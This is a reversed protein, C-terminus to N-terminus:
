NKSMLRRLTARILNSPMHEYAWAGGMKRIVGVEYNHETKFGPWRTKYSEAGRMFDFEKLGKEISDLIAFYHMWTGIGIRYPMAFEPVFGSQYSYRRGGYDFGYNAAVPKHDTTLFLLSLWGNKAFDKAVATHFNRTNEDDFPEQSAEPSGSKRTSFLSLM